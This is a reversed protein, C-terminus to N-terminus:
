SKMTRRVTLKDAGNIKLRITIRVFPSSQGELCPRFLLVDWVVAWYAQRTTNYNCDAPILARPFYSLPKKIRDLQNQM